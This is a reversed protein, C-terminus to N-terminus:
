EIRWERGGDMDARVMGRSLQEAITEMEQKVILNPPNTRYRFPIRNVQKDVPINSSGDANQIVLGQFDIYGLIEAVAESERIIVVKM